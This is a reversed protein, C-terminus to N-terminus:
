PCGYVIDTRLVYKVGEAVADAEHELCRDGHMHMLIAGAEPQFAIGNKDIENKNQKKSSSSPLYFRTAGGKCSSLYVLVTIETNGNPFRDIRESGDYHKGFSM